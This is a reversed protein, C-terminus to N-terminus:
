WTLLSEYSDSRSISSVCAFAGSIVAATAFGTIARGLIFIPSSPALACLLTGAAFIALSALILIKAPVMTYLKGFMLQFSGQCSGVTLLYTLSSVDPISGAPNRM